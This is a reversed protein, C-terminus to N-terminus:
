SLGSQPMFGFFQDDILRHQNYDPPSVYAPTNQQQKQYYPHEILPGKMYYDEEEEDSEVRVHHSNPLTHDFNPQEFRQQQNHSDVFDSNMQYDLQNAYVLLLLSFFSYAIRM